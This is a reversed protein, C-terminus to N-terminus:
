ETIIWSLNTSHRILRQPRVLCLRPMLEAKWYGTDKVCVILIFLAKFCLFHGRQYHWCAMFHDNTSRSYKMSLIVYQYLGVDKFLGWSSSFCPYRWHIGLTQKCFCTQVNVGQWCRLVWFRCPPLCTMRLGAKRLSRCIIWSLGGWVGKWKHPFWCVVKHKICQHWCLDTDSYRWSHKWKDSSNLM